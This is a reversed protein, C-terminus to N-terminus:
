PSSESNEGYIMANAEAYRNMFRMFRQWHNEQDSELKCEVWRKRFNSHLPNSDDCVVGM